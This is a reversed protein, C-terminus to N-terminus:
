HISRTLAPEGNDSPRSQEPSSGVAAHSADREKDNYKVMRAETGDRRPDPVMQRSLAELDPAQTMLWARGEASAFYAPVDRRKLSVRGSKEEELSRSFIM